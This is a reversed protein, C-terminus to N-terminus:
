VKDGNKANRICTPICHVMGAMRRARSGKSERKRERGRRKRICGNRKKKIERASSRTRRKIFSKEGNVNRGACHPAARKRCLQSAAGGGNGISREGNRVICGLSAFRVVQAVFLKFNNWKAQAENKEREIWNLEIAGVQKIKRSKKGARKKKKRKKCGNKERTQKASVRSKQSQSFFISKQTFLTKFTSSVSPTVLCHPQFPDFTVFISPIACSTSFTFLSFPPSPPPCLEFRFSRFSGPFHSSFFSSFSLSLSLASWCIDEDPWVPELMQETQEFTYPRSEVNKDTRPRRPTLRYSRSSRYDRHQMQGRRQRNWNWVLLFTPEWASRSLRIRRPSEKSRSPAPKPIIFNGFYERATARLGYGTVWKKRKREKNERKQSAEEAGYTMCVSAGKKGREVEESKCRNPDETYRCRDRKKKARSDKSM